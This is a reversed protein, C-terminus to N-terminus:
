EGTGPRKKELPDWSYEWWLILEKRKEVEKGGLLISMKKEPGGPHFAKNSKGRPTEAM